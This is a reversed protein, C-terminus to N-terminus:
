GRRAVPRRRAHREQARVELRDVLGLVPGAERRQEVPEPDGLGLAPHGVADLLRQREGLPDAVRDDDPGDNTM